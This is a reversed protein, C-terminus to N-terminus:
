PTTTSTGGGTNQLLKNLKDILEQIKKRLEEIKAANAESVSSRNRVLRAMIHGEHGAETMMSGTVDVKHTVRLDGFSIEKGAGVYKTDSGTMVLWEKGWVKVSFTASSSAVSVIEGSTIRAQGSPNVLISMGSRGEKLDNDSIHDKVELLRNLHKEAKEIVKEIKKETKRNLGNNDDNDDNASVFFVGGIVFAFVLAVIFALKKTNM